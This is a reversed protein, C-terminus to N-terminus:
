GSVWLRNPREVRTVFGDNRRKISWPHCSPLHVAVRVESFEESKSRAAAARDIAASNKSTRTATWKSDGKIWKSNYKSPQRAQRTPPCRTHPRYLVAYYYQLLIPLTVPPPPPYYLHILVHILISILEITRLYFVVTWFTRFCFVRMKKDQSIKEGFWTEPCFFTAKM